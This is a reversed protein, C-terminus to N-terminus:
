LADQELLQQPLAQQAAQQALDCANSDIGSLQLEATLEGIRSLQLNM